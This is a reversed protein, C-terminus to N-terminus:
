CVCVSQCNYLVCVFSYMVNERCVSFVCLCSHGRWFFIRWRAFYSAVPIIGGSRDTLAWNNQLNFYVGQLKAEDHRGATVDKWRELSTM